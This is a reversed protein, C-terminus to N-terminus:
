LLRLQIRLAKKFRNTITSQCRFCEALLLFDRSNVALGEHKM